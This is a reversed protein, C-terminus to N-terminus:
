NPAGAGWSRVGARVHELFLRAVPNLTRNKLTVIVIPWERAPLKIPLVKLSM